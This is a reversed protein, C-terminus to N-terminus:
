CDCCENWNSLRAKEQEARLQKLWAIPDEIEPYKMEIMATTDLLDNLAQGWHIQADTTDQQELFQLSALQQILENREESSLTKAQEVLEAITM